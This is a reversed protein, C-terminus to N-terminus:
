IELKGESVVRLIDIRRVIGVLQMDEDVVPLSKFGHRILYDAAVILPDDEKVVV